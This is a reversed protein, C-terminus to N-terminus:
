NQKQGGVPTIFHAKLDGRVSNVLGNVANGLNSVLQDQLERLKAVKLDGLEEPSSAEFPIIEEGFHLTLCYLMPLNFVKNGDADIYFYVDNEKVLALGDVFSQAETFICPIVIEGTKNIYGSFLNPDTNFEAVDALGDSFEGARSFQPYIIMKGSREIYEGM